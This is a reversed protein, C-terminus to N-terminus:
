NEEKVEVLYTIGQKEKIEYKDMFENFKVDDSVMVQYTAPLETATAHAYSYVGMVLFLITLICAAVSLASWLPSNEEAGLIHERKLEWVFAFALFCAAMIILITGPTTIGWHYDLNQFMQLITVGKM